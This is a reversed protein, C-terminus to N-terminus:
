VQHHPANIQCYNNLCSVVSCFYNLFLLPILFICRIDWCYHASVDYDWTGYSKPSAHCPILVIKLVYYKIILNSTLFNSRRCFLTLDSTHHHLQPQLEGTTKYDIRRSPTLDENVSALTSFLLLAAQRTLLWAAWNNVRQKVRSRGPYGAQM